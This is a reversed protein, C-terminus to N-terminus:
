ISIIKILECLCTHPSNHVRGAKKLRVQYTLKFHSNIDSLESAEENEGQKM